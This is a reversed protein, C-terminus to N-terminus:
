MCRTTSAFIRLAACRRSPVFEPASAHLANSARAVSSSAAAAHRPAAHRVAQASSKRLASAQTSSAASRGHVAAAAAASLAGTSVSAATPMLSGAAAMSSSSATGKFTPDFKDRASLLQRTARWGNRMFHTVRSSRRSIPLASHHCALRDIALCCGPGESPSGFALQMRM